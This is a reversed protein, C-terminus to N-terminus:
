EHAAVRGAGEERLHVGAPQFPETRSCGSRLQDRDDSAGASVSARGVFQGSRSATIAPWAKTRFRRRAWWSRPTSARGASRTAEANVSSASAIQCTAPPGPTEASGTVCCRLPAFGKPRADGWTARTEVGLDLGDKETSRTGHGHTSARRATTLWAGVARALRDRVRAWEPPGAGEEGYRADHEAVPDTVPGAM